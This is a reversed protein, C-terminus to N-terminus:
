RLEQGAQGISDNSDEIGDPHFQEKIQKVPHFGFAM